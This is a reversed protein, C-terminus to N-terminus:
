IKQRSIRWFSSLLKKVELSRLVRNWFNFNAYCQSCKEDVWETTLFKKRLNKKRSWENRVYAFKKSFSVNRLGRYACTAVHAYWPTLFTLKKSVKANTSFSHGRWMNQFDKTHSVQSMIDVEENNVWNKGLGLNVFLDLGLYKKWVGKFYRM